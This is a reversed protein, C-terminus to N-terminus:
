SWYKLPTERPRHNRRYHDAALKFRENVALVCDNYDALEGNQLHDQAEIYIAYLEMDERALSLDREADTPLAYPLIPPQKSAAFLIERWIRSELESVCECIFDDNEIGRDHMMLLIDKLKM